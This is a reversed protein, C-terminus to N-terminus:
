ALARGSLQTGLGTHIDNVVVIHKRHTSCQQGSAQPGESTPKGGPLTLTAKLILVQLARLRTPKGFSQSHSM